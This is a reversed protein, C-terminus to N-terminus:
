GFGSARSLISTAPYSTPGLIIAISGMSSMIMTKVSYKQNMLKESFQPGDNNLHEPDALTPELM